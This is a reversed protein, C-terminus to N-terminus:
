PIQTPALEDTVLDGCWDVYAQDSGGYENEIQALIIPGGNKALYPNTYDVIELIFKKMAAEWAANSSRFKIDPVQNLWVPLGGYNWEACVYPGIRLNV